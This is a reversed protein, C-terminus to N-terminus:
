VYIKKKLNMEDRVTKVGRADFVLLYFELLAELIRYNTTLNM